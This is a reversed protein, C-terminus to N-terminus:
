LDEKNFQFCIFFSLSPVVSLCLVVCAFFSFFFLISVFAIFSLFSYSDIMRVSNFCFIHEKPSKAEEDQCKKDDNKNM